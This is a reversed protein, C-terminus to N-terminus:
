HTNTSPLPSPKQKPHPPHKLQLLDRPLIDHELKHVPKHHMIKCKLAQMVTKEDKMWVPAWWKQSTQSPQKRTKRAPSCKPLGIVARLLPPNWAVDTNYDSCFKILAYWIWIWSQMHYKYRINESYFVQTTVGHCCWGSFFFFVFVFFFFFTTSATGTTLRAVVSTGWYRMSIWKLYVLARSAWTVITDDITVDYLAWRKRAIFRNYIGPCTARYAWLTLELDWKGHRRSQYPKSPIPSLNGCQRQDCFYAETYLILQYLLTSISWRLIFLFLVFFLVFYSRKLFSAKFMPSRLIDLYIITLRKVGM